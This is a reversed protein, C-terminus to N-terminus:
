RLIADPAGEQRDGAMEVLLKEPLCLISQGARTIRPQRVCLQDPCPSALIAVGQKADLDVLISGHETPVRIQLHQKAALDAQSISHLVTQDHRIIIRRCAAQDSFVSQWIFLSAASFALLCAAILDYKRM